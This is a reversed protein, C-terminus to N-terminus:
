TECYGAAWTRRPDHNRLDVEHDVAAKLCLLVQIWGAYNEVRHADDKFGAESLSLDTGGREDESLTFEALTGEFYRFAFHHPADAVVVECLLEEGGSFTLRFSGDRTVSREAWFRERGHDTSLMRFVKEPSSALHLRWQVAAPRASGSM